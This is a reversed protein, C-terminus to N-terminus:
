RGSLRARRIKTPDAETLGQVLALGSDASASATEFVEAITRPTDYDIEEQAGDSLPIGNCFDNAM